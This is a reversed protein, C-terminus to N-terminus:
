CGTIVRAQASGGNRRLMVLTTRMLGTLLITLASAILLLGLVPDFHAWKPLLPMIIQVAPATGGDVLAFPPSAWWEWFNSDNFGVALFVILPSFRLVIAFVAALGSHRITASAALGLLTCCLLDLVTLM